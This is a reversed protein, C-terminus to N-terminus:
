SWGLGDVGGDSDSDGYEDFSYGSVVVEFIGDRGGDQSVGGYLLEEFDERSSRTDRKSVQLEESEYM